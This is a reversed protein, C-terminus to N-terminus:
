GVLYGYSTILGFFLPIAGSKVQVWIGDEQDRISIVLIFAEGSESERALQERAFWIEM